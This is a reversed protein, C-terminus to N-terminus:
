AQSVDLATSALALIASDVAQIVGKRNAGAQELVLLAALEAKDLGPLEAVVSVVSGLLLQKLLETKLEELTKDAPGADIKMAVHEAPLEGAGFERTEGPQLLKGGVFVAHDATNEFNQKNM